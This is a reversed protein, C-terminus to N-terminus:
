GRGTVSSQSPLPAVVMASLIQSGRRTRRPASQLAPKHGPLESNTSSFPRRELGVGSPRTLVVTTMPFMPSTVPSDGHAVERVDVDDAANSPAIVGHDSTSGCHAGCVTEARGQDPALLRRWFHGSWGGRASRDRERAGRTRFGRPAGRRSCKFRTWRLEAQPKEPAYIRSADASETIARRRNNRRLTRAPRRAEREDRAGYVPLGVRTGIQRRTVLQARV